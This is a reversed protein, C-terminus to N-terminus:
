DASAKWVLQLTKEISQTHRHTNLGNARPLDERQALLGEEPHLVPLHDVVQLRPDPEGLGLAAGRGHVGQEAVAPGVLWLAPGGEVLQDAVQPVFWNHTQRDGRGDCM